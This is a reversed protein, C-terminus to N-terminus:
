FGKGSAARAHERLTEVLPNVREGAALGTRHIERLRKKVRNRLEIVIPKM